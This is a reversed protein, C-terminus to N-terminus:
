SFMYRGSRAYCESCTTGEKAALVAGLNCRYACIGISPCPMKQTFSMGGTIQERNRSVTKLDDDL